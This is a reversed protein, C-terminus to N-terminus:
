QLAQGCSLIAKRAPPPFPQIARWHPLLSVIAVMAFFQFFPALLFGEFKLMSFSVERTRVELTPNKGRDGRNPSPARGLAAAEVPKPLLEHQVASFFFGEGFTIGGGLVFFL